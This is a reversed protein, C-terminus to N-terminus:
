LYFQTEYLSVKQKMKQETFCWAAKVLIVHQSEEVIDYFM